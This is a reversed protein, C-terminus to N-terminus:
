PTHKGARLLRRMCSLTKMEIRTTSHARKRRQTDRERVQVRPNFIHRIDTPVAIIFTRMNCWASIMSSSVYSVAVDQRIRPMRRTFMLQYVALSDDRIVPGAMRSFSLPIYAAYRPVFIRHQKCKPYALTLYLVNLFTPKYHLDHFLSTMWSEILPFQKM